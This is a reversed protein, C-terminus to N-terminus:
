RRRRRGPHARVGLAVAQAWPQAADQTYIRANYLILTPTCSIQQM